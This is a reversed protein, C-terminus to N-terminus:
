LCFVAYSIVLHSSNLRTSKRDQHVGVIEHHQVARKGHILQLFLHAFDHSGLDVELAESWADLFRLSWAPGPFLSFVRPPEGQPFVRPWAGPPEPWSPQPLRLLKTAINKQRAM